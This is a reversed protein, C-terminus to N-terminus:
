LGYFVYRAASIVLYAGVVYGRVLTVLTRVKEGKSFFDVAIYNMSIKLVNLEVDDERLFIFFDNM